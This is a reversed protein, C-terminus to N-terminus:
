PVAADISHRCAGRCVGEEGSRERNMGNARSKVRSDGVPAQECALHETPFFNTLFKPLKHKFERIQSNRQYSYKSKM